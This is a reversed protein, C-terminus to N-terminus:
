PARESLHTDRHGAQGMIRLTATSATNEASPLAVLAKAHAWIFELFVALPAPIQQRSPYYLFAGKRQLSWDPLVRVLRGDAIMPRARPEALYAIGLGAVAAGMVLQADNATFHGGVAIKIREGAREFEWAHIAGDWDERQRICDHAALENLSTPAPNRQLYSPAAVAIMEFPEFLRMAIMDKEIHEGVQVGADFGEAVMDREADDTIIELEIEPYRDLFAPVLPLIMVSAAQRSALLRLKGAPQGRLASTTEVARCLQGLAPRLETLLHEGAETLAVSRTTRNFLRVGLRKELQQILHSLTQPAMVLQAAARGFNHHEAVAAFSILEAFQAGIQKSM